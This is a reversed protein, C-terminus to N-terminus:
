APENRPTRGQCGAKAAQLFSQAASGFLGPVHTYIYRVGRGVTTGVNASAAPMGATKGAAVIQRIAADIAQAVPAAAPNGPFGMSQSLDSPGVFFVDVGDVQLIEPLNPLAAADEIQVCVLSERNAAQVFEAASGRFGYGSARTGAALGRRGQPHFKVAEVAAVADARTIVHPVQVGAAGRDMVEVIDQAAKSRPRVIPTIGSAEAAMIMLEASEPGITGHECDILVWDFGCGAAMEVLQPSPIMVSLGLAPEGAALKAKMANARM